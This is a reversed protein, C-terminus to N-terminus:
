RRDAAAISALITASSPRASPTARAGSRRITEVQRRLANEELGASSRSTWTNGHFLRNDSLAQIIPDYAPKHAWPGNEGFGSISVYIIEPAIKRLDREGIGLREVVGPRFNQVFVDASAAIR